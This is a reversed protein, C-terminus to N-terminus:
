LYLQLTPQLYEPGGPKLTSPTSATSTPSALFGLM